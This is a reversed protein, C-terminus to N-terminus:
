LILGSQILIPVSFILASFLTLNSPMVRSLLWFHFVWILPSPPTILLRLELSYRRLLSPLAMLLSLNLLIASLRYVDFILYPSWSYPLTLNDSFSAVSDRRSLRWTEWFLNALNIWPEVSRSLILVLVIKLSVLSNDTFWIMAWILSASTQFDRLM